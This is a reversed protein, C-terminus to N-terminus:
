INKEKLKEYLRKYVEFTFKADYLANHCNDRKIDFFRCVDSLSFNEISPEDKLVLYAMSMVDLKHYYFPPNFAGLEHLTNYLWAWDYFFNYGCLICGGCKEFFIKMAEEINIADKWDEKNYKSIELAKSDALDIRKPRIKIDFEEKIELTKPDVRLWGMEIIEHNIKLGTMELDIFILDREKMKPGNKILVIDNNQFQEFYENSM